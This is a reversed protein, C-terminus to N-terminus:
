PPRREPAHDAGRAGPASAGPTRCSAVASCALAGAVGSLAPVAPSVLILGFRYAALCAVVSMGGVLAAALLGRGPRSPLGAALAAGAAAGALALIIRWDVVAGLVRAAVAYRVTQGDLLMQIALAVVHPGHIARGMPVAHPGDRGVRLDGIVVVRGAYESRLAADDGALVQPAARTADNLAADSPLELVFRGVLDGPTGADSASQELASLRAARPSDSPGTRVDLGYDGFAYHPTLRGHWAVDAAALALSAQPAFGPRQVVLAVSPAARPSLNASAFHAPAARAIAPAMAAAQAAGPAFAGAMALVPTGRTWAREIAAVLAADHGSAGQFHLDLVIARAGADALREVLRAHLLRLSQLDSARVQPLALAEGLADVSPVDPIGVVRVDALADPVADLTSTVTRDWWRGAGAFEIASGAVLGALAALATLAAGAMTPRKRIVGRAMAPASVLRRRPAHAPPLGEAVRRLDAAMESASAYRESPAKRLAKLLVAEAGRSLAPNLRRPPRPPTEAVIRGAHLPRDRPLDYPPAGCLMEYLVVGLAYLDSGRGIAGLSPDCQEPSLYELTGRLLATDATTAPQGDLLAAVGFDILRPAGDAGVLINAPKLDRHVVGHAHCAGVADCVDAVLRLIAEPPLAADRAFASIPKAQRVLEMAYFPVVLGSQEHTGAEHITAVGPHRLDALIQAERTFASLQRANWPAGNMLKLAVERRPSLQMARYVSGMGGTGLLELLEYGGVRVTAPAAQEMIGPAGERGHRRIGDGSEDGATYRLLLRM